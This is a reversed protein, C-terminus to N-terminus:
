LGIVFGGSGELFGLSQVWSGSEVWCQSKFYLKYQPKFDFNNSVYALVALIKSNNVSKIYCVFGSAISVCATLYLYGGFIGQGCCEPENEYQVNQNLQIEPAIDCDAKCGTGNNWGQVWIWYTCCQPVEYQDIPDGWANIDVTGKQDTLGYISQSFNSLIPQNHDKKCLIHNM